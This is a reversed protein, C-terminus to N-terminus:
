AVLCKKQVERAKQIEVVGRQVAAHAMDINADIRDLYTGQEVILTRLDDFMQHVEQVSRLLASIEENQERKQAELFMLESIDAESYGMALYSTVKEEKELRELTSEDTAPVKKFRQKREERQKLQNTFGSQAKRFATLMNALRTALHKEVNKAALQESPSATDRVAITKALREAEKLLRQVDNNYEFVLEEQEKIESESMGFKPSFVERQQSVLLEMKSNIGAEISAFSEVARMWSPPPAGQRAAEENKAQQAAQDHASAVGGASAWEALKQAAKRLKVFEETRDRYISSM